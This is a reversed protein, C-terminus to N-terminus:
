PNVRATAPTTPSSPAGTSSAASTPAGAPSASTAGGTLGQSSPLMYATAEITGALKGSAHESGSGTAPALKVNQITLLRGSVQLGGSATRVTFGDLTQLLHELDFFSGEFGLTFPLQTFGAAATVPKSSSSSASSGSASPGTSSGSTISTFQVSKRNSAQALQYILSPVEQGPPVAKGLEVISAYASAYSSQAERADALQSEASVLQGNAASVESALKAAQKREPSVAKLYVGALLVLAVVCTVVIRDRGTM